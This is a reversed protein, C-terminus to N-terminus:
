GAEEAMAILAQGRDVQDGAAVLVEAVAGDRPSQVQLEMKMSELVVLVDGEAVAAGPEARVDIVVGPMPAELSGSATEAGGGTEEQILEFRVPEAAGDLIWVAETGERVIRLPRSVGDVTVEADAQTARTAEAGEAAAEAIRFTGSDGHLEWEWDAHCDNGSRHSQFSQWPQPTPRIVVEAPGDPRSLTAHIWAAAGGQRWGDRADWPDDSPPTGTLLALAVAPLEPGPSPPAIEEGLREILGTDLMGARVEARALLARLYPANTTPGLVLLEGLGRDLRALATARDPGHAILKALMPDYDTGVEVGAEIGSDIRIGDEGSFGSADAGAPERYAVVRGASPLFGHAPDEAYLRAEIAHGDLRVEEQRLPLPEGAAVRLQLEVLDLGTVAETVPHEVQLRTNVELFFWSGPDDREAILEVTGANVYGCERVLAVAAKGMRQRLEPDVVPSPAEEVVKQHRRQLSCEREGLFLANGHADVIVQVEIHRSAAVYREVLLRDDGFAGEAERRAAGIAEPLEVLDTVVRMGKGGGGAAAKLLLPLDAGAAWEEIEGDALREGSLGPLVPVGASAAARKAAVKDGLTAMAQAGPGIFVLGAEECARVLEPSESLFGYGPHVAEAGTRLAADVIRRPDLYSEAAPTPGIRVARDAARAHPAAADADSYVAIAEVGLRRLTRQVRLAIEGRNAILVRSFV